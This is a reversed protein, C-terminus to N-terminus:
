RWASNEASACRRQALAYGVSTRNSDGFIERFAQMRSTRHPRDAGSRLRLCLRLRLRLCASALLAFAPLCSFVSACVFTPLYASLRLYAFAPVCACHCAHRLCARGCVLVQLCLVRLHEGVLSDSNSDLLKM